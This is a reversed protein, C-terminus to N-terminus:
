QLFRRHLCSQAEIWKAELRRGPPQPAAQLLHVQRRLRGRHETRQEVACALEHWLLRQKRGHPVVGHHAVIREDRAHLLQTARQRVIRTLRAEDLRPM